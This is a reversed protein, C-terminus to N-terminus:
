RNPPKVYSPDKKKKKFNKKFGVKVSAENLETLMKYNRHNKQSYYSTMLLDSTTSINVMSILDKNNWNLTRFVSELCATFLKQLPFSKNNVLHKKFGLKILVPLDFNLKLKLHEYNKFMIPIIKHM